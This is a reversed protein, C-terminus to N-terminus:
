ISAVEEWLVEKTSTKIAETRSGVGSDEVNGLENLNKHNYRILQNYRGQMSCAQGNM